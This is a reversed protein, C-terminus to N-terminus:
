PQPRETACTSAIADLRRFFDMKDLGPAFVLLDLCLLRDRTPDPIFYCWFPGGGAFRKSNWAGELKVCAVGGIEADQWVLTEPVLEEDHMATGLDQRMALLLDRDKLDAAPDAVKRWSITIGRSPGNRMIELGPFGDPESQNAQFTAPIELFIHFRQWLATMLQENLGDYRNRRLIRERNSKELNGRLSEANRILVSGLSNRDRAAVVVVLQYTSWPDNVRVIGGGAEEMKRWSEASVVKRAEKAVRGGDDLVVLMLVNKYGKALDWNEPAFVDPTFRTEDRIVFTHTSNFLGLFRDVLPRTAEDPMVVAMDGYSGAAMFIGRDQDVGCATFLLLLLLLGLLPNARRM